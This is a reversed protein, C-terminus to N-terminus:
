MRVEDLDKPLPWTPLERVQGPQSVTRRVGKLDQLVRLARDSVAEYQLRLVRPSDECPCGRVADRKEENFFLPVTHRSKLQFNWINATNRPFRSRLGPM